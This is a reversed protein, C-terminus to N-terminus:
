RIPFFQADELGCDRSIDHGCKRFNLTKDLCLRVESIMGRKCKVTLDDPNLRPNSELFAEEIVSAPLKVPKFLKRFVEPIKVAEFALRSQQYYDEASVGSCRGHKKWQYWALGSSGMIDEMGRTMRRSPDRETTKCFSPYGREFQPWLGHVSFGYGSGTECTPASRDDGELACWNPQWSLALVWYDVPLDDKAQATTGLLLLTICTLFIKIGARM